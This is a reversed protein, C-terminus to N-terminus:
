VILGFLFNPSRVQRFRFVTISNARLPDADQFHDSLRIRKCHERVRAMLLEVEETSLGTQIAPETVISTSHMSFVGTLM